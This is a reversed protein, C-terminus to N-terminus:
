IGKKVSYKAAETGIEHGTLGFLVKLQASLKLADEKGWDDSKIFTKIADSLEISVQATQIPQVPAGALQEELKEIHLRLGQAIDLPLTIEKACRNEASELVMYFETLM